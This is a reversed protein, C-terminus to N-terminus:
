FEHYDRQPNDASATGPGFARFALHTKLFGNSRALIWHCRRFSDLHALYLVHPPSTWLPGM